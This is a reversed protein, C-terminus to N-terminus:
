KKPPGIRLMDSGSKQLYPEIKNALAALLWPLQVEVRVQAPEVDLQATVNQGLAGVKIDAHNGTWKVDSTFKGAFSQQLRGLGEVLRRHAEEAGIEHPLFIVISKAM